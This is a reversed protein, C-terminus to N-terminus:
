FPAIHKCKISYANIDDSASGSNEYYTIGGCTKKAGGARHDQEIVEDCECCDGLGTGCTYNPEAPERTWRYKGNEVWNCSEDYGWYYRQAYYDNISTLTTLSRGDWYSSCALEDIEGDCDQDKGDGELGVIVGPEGIAEVDGLQWNTQTYIIKSKFCTPCSEDCDGNGYTFIDGDCDKWIPCCTGGKCIELDGGLQTEGKDVILGTAAGGTNLILGGAKAQGVNSANLPAAMNGEPPAQTPEQWALVYFATVFCLTLIGFALATIKPSVQKSM